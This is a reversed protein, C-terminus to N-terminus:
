GEQQVPHPAEKACVTSAEEGLLAVCGEHCSSETGLNVEDQEKSFATKTSTASHM